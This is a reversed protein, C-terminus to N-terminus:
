VQGQTGATTRYAVGGTGRVQGEAAGGPLSVSAERQGASRQEDDGEEM